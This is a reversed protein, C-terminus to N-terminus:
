QSALTELEKIYNELTAIDKDYASPDGISVNGRLYCAIPLSRAAFFRVFGDPGGQPWVEGIAWNKAKYDKISAITGNVNSKETDLLWSIYSKVQAVDMEYASPDGMSINGRLYPYITLGRLVFFYTFSDPGGDPYTEGIAWNKEKYSMIDKVISKSSEIEQKPTLTPINYM